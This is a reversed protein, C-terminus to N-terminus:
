RVLLSATKNHENDQDPPLRPAPRNAAITSNPVICDQPTSRPPSIAVHLPTHFGSLNDPLGTINTKVFRPLGVSLTPSRWAKLASDFHMTGRAHWM